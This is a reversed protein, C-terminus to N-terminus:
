NLICITSSRPYPQMYYDPTIQQTEPQNQSHECSKTNLLTLLNTHLSDTLGKAIRIDDFQKMETRLLILATEKEIKQTLIQEMIQLKVVYVYM